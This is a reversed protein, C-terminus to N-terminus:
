PLSLGKPHGRGADQPRARCVGPPSIGFGKVEPLTLPFLLPFHVDWGLILRGWFGCNQSGRPAAVGRARGAGM